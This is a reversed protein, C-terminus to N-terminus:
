KPAIRFALDALRKEGPADCGPSLNGVAIQPYGTLRHGNSRDPQRRVGIGADHLQDEHGARDEV